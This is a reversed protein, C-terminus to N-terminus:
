LFANVQKNEILSFGTDKERLFDMTTLLNIMKRSVIVLM